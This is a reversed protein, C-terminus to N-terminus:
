IIPALIRPYVADLELLKHVTIVDDTTIAEADKALMVEIPTLETVLGVSTVGVNSILVLAIMGTGCKGCTIHLLHADSKEGLCRADQPVYSNECLPCYSTLRVGEGFAAFTQQAPSTSM